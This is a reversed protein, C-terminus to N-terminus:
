NGQTINYNAKALLLQIKHTNLNSEAEYLNTLETIYASSTIVGNKLQSESVKLIRKRLEIITEDSRIFSGIKHIEAAQQNLAITTNLNFIETNNAVIDKNILLSKREKKTANWDFINWNLKVGVWYYGTFENELLNLGPNGFGGTAFGIIKPTNKKSLLMESTEIQAIQLQFLDLEPRLIKASLNTSISPNEFNTNTEIVSGILTSLTEIINLKKVYIETFQQEIKLIEVELIVDSAPLIIGHKIGSKVEKLQSKLQQKKAMLLEHEEQLFLMSFYLKNVRTKLQYLSVEIQKQQTKLEALKVESTANIKRGAYILQSISFNSKYQDLNPPEFPSDPLLVPAQPVDSQYTAQVLLDLKPYKETKLVELDLKNQQTLLATKKALPYNKQVMTYCRELTLKEQSFVSISLLIFLLMNINKM